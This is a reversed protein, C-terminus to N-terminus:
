VQLGFGDENTEKIVANQLYGSGKFAIISLSFRILSKNSVHEKEIGRSCGAVHLDGM